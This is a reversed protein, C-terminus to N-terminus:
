RVGGSGCGAQRWDGCRCTGVHLPSKLCARMERSSSALDPRSARCCCCACCCSHTAVVVGSAAPSSAVFATAARATPYAGVCSCTCEIYLQRFAILRHFLERNSRSLDQESLIMCLNALRYQRSRRRRRKGQPGGARCAPGAPHSHLGSRSPVVWTACLSGSTCLSGALGNIRGFAALTSM